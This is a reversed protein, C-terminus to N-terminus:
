IAKIGKLTGCSADDAIEEGVGASSENSLPDSVEPTWPQCCAFGSTNSSAQAV